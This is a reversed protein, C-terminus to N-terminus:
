TELGGILGDCTAAGTRKLGWYATKGAAPLTPAAGATNIWKITYGSMYNAVTAAAAGQTFRVVLLQNNTWKDPAFTIAGGGVDGTVFHDDGFSGNLTVTPTGAAPTHIQATPTVASTILLDWVDLTATQVLMATAWQGPLLLTAGNITVAGDEPAISLAGAGRQEIQIPIRAPLAVSAHKPVIFVTPSASESAVLGNIDTLALTYTTGAISNINLGAPIYSM